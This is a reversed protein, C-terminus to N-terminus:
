DGLRTMRAAVSEATPSAITDVIRGDALFVVTDAYSAATPDHTVMVVTQDLLDVSERLLTLIARGSRTDLAGTPEDAFIADPRAVLARAIAVRQQQGGSLEGPKHKVRDGLGVRATVEAVWAADPQRKALRVPLTINQAATLSPVLNFSQFVFGIRDRRM